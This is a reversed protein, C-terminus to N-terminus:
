LQALYVASRAPATVVPAPTLLIGCPTHPPTTPFRLSTFYAPPVLMTTPHVRPHRPPSSTKLPRFLVQAAKRSDQGHPKSAQLQPPPPPLPPSSRAPAKAPSVM